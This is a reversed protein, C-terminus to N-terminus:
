EPEVEKLNFIKSRKLGLSLHGHTFQWGKKNKTFIITFILRKVPLVFGVPKMYRTTDSHLIKYTEVGVREDTQKFSKADVKSLYQLTMPFPKLEIGRTTDTPPRRFAYVDLYFVNRSLVYNTSNFATKDDLLSMFIEFSYDAVSNSPIEYGAVALTASKDFYLEFEEQNNTETLKLMKQFRADVENEITEIEEKSLPREKQDWCSTFSLVFPLLLAIVLNKM